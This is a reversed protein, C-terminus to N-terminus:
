LGMRKEISDGPKVRTFVAPNITELSAGVEEVGADRLQELQFLSFSPGANVWVKLHSAEAAARACEIITGAREPNTGAGIEIRRSGASEIFRAAERVEEADLPAPFDRGSSRACYHCPPDVTCDTVTGAFGDLIFERGKEKQRVESAAVFLDSYFPVDAGDASLLLEAEEPTLTRNRGNAIVSAIRM